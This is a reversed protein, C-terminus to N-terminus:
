FKVVMSAGFVSNSKRFSGDKVDEFVAANARDLRYELKFSTNLDYAYGMGLSLATRNVGKETDGYVLDGSMADRGLVEPGIGNRVDSGYGLLGGGNKNNKLYDARAILELRPTLKYAALASLGMWKASRLEGTVPDPTISAQKQQGYSFQGQVTWDGRIFYGDIEFLDLATNRTGGVLNAAKGHVGAFGFGKFEGRAYDIRYALVPAKEGAANKSANMNALMAKSLWKGRTLEIGAGTYATPLTFDFLLNHTILKNLTPQLFEYGSWDPIHGAIMRTQLNGLPVSISAEQVFGGNGIVADTGRNPSLTLKYRTGSETEKLFEIAATGFYSNDYNYGDDGVNNIFQFGARNQAKNYIYAPEMYGSIKLGKYGQAEQADELAETKVAIRNFDQVQQPTMGWQPQRPAPKSEAAKLRNELQTVRDRLARLEKLLEENSQAQAAGPFAAALALTLAALQPAKM